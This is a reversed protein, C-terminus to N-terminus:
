PQIYFMQISPLSSRFHNQLVLNSPWAKQSCRHAIQPLQPQLYRLVLRLSRFARKSRRSGTLSMFYVGRQYTYELFIDQRVTVIREKVQMPSLLILITRFNFPRIFTARPTLQQLDQLVKNFYNVNLSHPKRDNTPPSKCYIISTAFCRSSGLKVFGHAISVTKKRRRHLSLQTTEKPKKTHTHFLHLHLVRGHRLRYKWLGHPTSSSWQLHSNSWSPNKWDHLSRITRFLIVINSGTTRNDTHWWRSQVFRATNSQLCRKSYLTATIRPSPIYESHAVMWRHFCAMNKGIRNPWVRIEKTEM